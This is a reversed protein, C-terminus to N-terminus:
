STPFEIYAITESDSWVSCTGTGRVAIPRGQAQASLITAIMAQNGPISPDIAWRNPITACAPPASRSASTTVLYAASLPTIQAVPGFGTDSANAPCGAALGILAALLHKMHM